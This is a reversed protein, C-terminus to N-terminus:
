QVGALAKAKEQRAAPDAPRPAPSGGVAATSWTLYRHQIKSKGGKSVRRAFPLESRYDNLGFSGTSVRAQAQYRMREPLGLDRRVRNVYTECDGPEDAPSAADSLNLAGHALEHLVAFGVDFAALVDKDGRLGKFDGFDLLVSQREVRQGTARSQYIVPAALRAFSVQRSAHHDELVFAKLGDVAAAVLDRAAASGGGLRARDGLTLFGDEDFRLELFGTKARLSEAVVSLRGASLGLRGGGNRVGSRYRFPDTGVEARVAEAAVCLLLLAAALALARTFGPTHNTLSRVAAVM